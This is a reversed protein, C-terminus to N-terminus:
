YDYNHQLDRAFELIASFLNHQIKVWLKVNSFSVKTFQDNKNRMIQNQNRMIPDAVNVNSWLIWIDYYKKSILVYPVIDMNELQRLIHGIFAYKEGDCLACTEFPM